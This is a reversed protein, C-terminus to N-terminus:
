VSAKSKLYRYMEIPSCIPKGPFITVGQAFFTDTILETCIWKSNKSMLKSLLKRFPWLILTFWDYKIKGSSRIRYLFLDAKEPDIEPIDAIEVPNYKAIYEDKRWCVLRPNIEWVFKGNPIEVCLAVHAFDALKVPLPWRSGTAWRIILPLPGSGKVFLISVKSM